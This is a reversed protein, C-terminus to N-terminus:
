VNFFEKESVAEGWSKTAIKAETPFNINMGEIPPREMIGKVATTVQQIFDRNNDVELIVEDHIQAVMKVSDRLNNDIIWDQIALQSRKM